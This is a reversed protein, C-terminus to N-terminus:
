KLGLTYVIHTCPGKSITNTSLGNSHVVKEHSHNLVEHRVEVASFGSTDRSGFGWVGSGLGWVRLGLGWVRVIHGERKDSVFM